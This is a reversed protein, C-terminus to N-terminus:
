SAAAKKLEHLREILRSMESLHFAEVEDPWNTGPQDSYLLGAWAFDGDAIMTALTSHDSSTATEVCRVAAFRTPSIALALDAARGSERIRAVVQLETQLLARELLSLESPPPISTDSM